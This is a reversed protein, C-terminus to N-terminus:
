VSFMQKDLGTVKCAPYNQMRKEKKRLVLNEGLFRESISDIQQYGERKTQVWLLGLMINPEARGPDLSNSM